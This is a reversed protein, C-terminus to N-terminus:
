AVGFTAHTPTSITAVPRWSRADWVHVDNDLGASALWSGDPSFAVANTEAMDAPLVRATTKSAADRIVISGDPSAAAWWKGDPSSGLAVLACPPQVGADVLPSRATGSPWDILRATKGNTAAITHGDLCFGFSRFETEGSLVRATSESGLLATTSVACALVTLCAPVVWDTVRTSLRSVFCFV